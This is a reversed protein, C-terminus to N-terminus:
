DPLARRGHHRHAPGVPGGACLGSPVARRHVHDARRLLRPANRRGEVAKLTEGRISARASPFVMAAGTTRCLHALGHVMGSVITCLFRFASGTPRETFSWPRPRRFLANNVINHHTLTARRPRARDHRQHVPHQDSRGPELTAGIDDVMKLAAPGAMGAVDGFNVMGPSIAEGMRIVTRLHPLKESQLKGPEADALEPALAQLMELYRSTKFSEALILGKCGVRNLAYELEALRYAPNINVMVLGIEATAFQTLLWEPRNPAWIGIRDGKGFGLAVLGAAFRRAEEKLERWTWRLGSDCFAAALSDPHTAATGALLAGITKELLAPARAGIVHSLGDRPGQDHAANAPAGTAAKDLSTIPKALTVTWDTSM